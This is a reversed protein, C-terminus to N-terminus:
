ELFMPLKPYLIMTFQDDRHHKEKFYVAYDLISKLFRNKKEINQSQIYVDLLKSGEIPLSVAKSSNHNEFEIKAALFVTEMDNIKTTLYDMRAKFTQADYIGREVLEYLNDKQSQLNRLNSGITKMINNHLGNEEKTHDDLFSMRDLQLTYENLWLKLGEILRNEVYVLKSSKNNCHHSCMLQAEKNKYTRLSMSAGCVGCRILGALPNVIPHKDSFSVHRRGQLIRQAKEFIEDAVLPPHHGQTILWDKKLRLKADKKKGPTTSKKIERKKWTIKGIYIPNKLINLVASSSWAKGTSSRYGINSLKAAIKNAGLQHNTYWDFIVKVVMAQENNPMLTRVKDRHCIDYGFPPIPSLYNGEEVSRLRGRQLRRNIIKLEKRAMFAEFESYEEDFEDQLDYVKRPTIIKTASKKFTELILGQEQMNGRGLRDMDMCLVADYCGAEVEQLLALMAPRHVLSEGSVIEEKISIMNLKNEHAYRTLYQRHKALTEGAGQAEAEIDARSKRLYMCVKEM